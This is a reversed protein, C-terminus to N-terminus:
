REFARFLEPQWRRIAVVMSTGFRSPKGLSKEQESVAAFEKILARMKVQLAQNGAASLLGNVVLLEEDSGNFNSQFYEHKINKHFFQQIPGGKRWTFSPSLKLRIRNNPLLELVGLRDLKALLQVLELAELRYQQLIQEFEFGNIVCVAVLLLKPEAAVQQEQAESLAELKTEQEAALQALEALSINVVNAVAELRSLSFDAKSFMRKVSAESLGLASAVDAYTTGHLRLQRKLMKILQQSQTVSM